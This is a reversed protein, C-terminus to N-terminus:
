RLICDITAQADKRGKRVVRAEKMLLSGPREDGGESPQFPLPTTIPTEASHDERTPEDVIRCNLTWTVRTLDDGDLVFFDFVIQHSVKVAGPLTFSPSEEVPIYLPVTSSTLGCEHVSPLVCESVAIRHVGVLEDGSRETRVLRVRLHETPISGKTTSFRVSITMPSDLDVYLLRESLNWRGSVSIEGVPAKNFSISFHKKGFTATSSELEAAAEKRAAWTLLRDEVLDYSGFISDRRPICRVARGVCKLGGRECTVRLPTKSEFVTSNASAAVIIYYRVITYKGTFSPPLLHPLTFHFVAQRSEKPDIQVALIEPSTSFLLASSSSLRQEAPVYGHTSAISPRSAEEPSRFSFLVCIPCIGYRVM